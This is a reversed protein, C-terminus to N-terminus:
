LAPPSARERAIGPKASCGSVSNARGYVSRPTPDGRAVLGSGKAVLADSPCIGCAHVHIRVRGPGFGPTERDRPTLGEGPGHVVRPEM